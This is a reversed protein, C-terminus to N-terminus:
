PVYEGEELLDDEDQPSTSFLGARFSSQFGPISFLTGINTLDCVCM